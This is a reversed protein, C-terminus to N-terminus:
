PRSQEEELRERAIVRGLFAIQEGIVRLLDDLTVIGVLAGHEDVVPVRRVGRMRMLEAVEYADNEEGTTVLEKGILDGATVLAPDGEVAMVAVVLDRDTVIGIPIREGNPQDTVVVDGVHSSRMLQAVELATTKATCQIVNRSCLEGIRM